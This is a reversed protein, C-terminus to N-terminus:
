GPCLAEQEARLLAQAEAATKAAAARAYIERAHETQLVSLLRKVSGVASLSMSLKRIGAGVLAIVAPADGALEGCVSLPKGAKEFERAALSVLRLLAPHYPQYYAASVEPNMRDAALLYQCLDNTGISAFDVEDAILDAILAVAPIEVMIGVKM